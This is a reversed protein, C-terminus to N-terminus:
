AFKLVPKITEGTHSDRIATEIDAFPYFRILKDFPFRGERYWDIMRNIFTTADHSDGEIIGRLKRGMLLFTPDVSVRMDPSVGALWACTGRPATSALATEMVEQNGTTDLSFEVGAGTIKMIETLVDQTKGNLTHTAGLDRALALRDDSLDVAIITAAGAVKAGMVASLGVTGAGFVVFTAGLGIELSNVAAGAGTQVGCALPGLIELPVDKPVKVINREGCIAYTAFSSQGFFLGNIKEIGKSLPSSGDRRNGDFNLQLLSHCYTHDHAVCSPCNGCYTYTMVVHDGVEVKSVGAGVKIVVGAGEHGLVMPMPTPLIGELASIDTHCLGTAVLKVLIEGPRPDEIEITEITLKSPSRAIATEIQM